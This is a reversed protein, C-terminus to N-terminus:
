RVLVGGDRGLEVAIRGKLMEEGAGTFGAGHFFFAYGRGRRVRACLDAGSLDNRETDRARWNARLRDARELVAQSGVSSTLRQGTATTDGVRLMNRRRLELPHLGLDRAIRDMQREIAFCTQPA